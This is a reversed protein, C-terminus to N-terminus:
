VPRRFRKKQKEASKEPHRFNGTNKQIPHGFIGKKIRDRKVNARYNGTIGMKPLSKQRQMFDRKKQANARNQASNGAAFSREFGNKGGNKAGFVLILTFIKDKKRM